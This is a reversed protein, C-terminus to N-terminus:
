DQIWHLSQRTEHICKQLQKNEEELSTKSSSRLINNMWEVAWINVSDFDFEPHSAYFAVVNPEKTSLM